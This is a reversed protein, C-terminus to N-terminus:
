ISDTSLFDAVSMGRDAMLREMREIFDNSFVKRGMAKNVVCQIKMMHHRRLSDSEVASQPFPYLSLLYFGLGDPVIYERTMMSRQEETYGYRLYAPHEAGLYKDLSIGLLEKSVVVSQDLSGVQAYIKPRKLGPIMQELRGFAITFAHNVDNMNKYQREVDAILAQLTSDQFFVLLRTNIDPSNVAGLKLVDEVLVRTELPYETRMQHLSAFDAATLYQSEPRDFREVVIIDSEDSSEPPAGHWQCSAMLLVSVVFFLIRRVM